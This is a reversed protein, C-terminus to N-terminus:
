YYHNDEIMICDEFRKLYGELSSEAEDPTTGFQNGPHYPAAEGDVSCYHSVEWSYPYNSAIGSIVNKLIRGKIFHDGITYKMEKIIEFKEM